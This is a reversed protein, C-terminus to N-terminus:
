IIGNIMDNNDNKNNNDGNDNNNTSNNNNSSIVMIIIIKLIIELIIKLITIYIGNQLYTLKIWIDVHLGPTSYIDKYGQLRYLSLSSSVGFFVKFPGLFTLFSFKSFRFFFKKGMTRFFM